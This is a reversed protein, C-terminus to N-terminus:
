RQCFRPRLPSGRCRGPHARLTRDTSSSGAPSYSTRTVSPSFARRSARVSARGVSCRASWAASAGSRIAQCRLRSISRASDSTPSASRARTAMSTARASRSRSPSRTSTSGETVGTSGAITSCAMRPRRGSPLASAMVWGKIGKSSVVRSVFAGPSGFRQFWNRDSISDASRMSTTMAKMRRLPM